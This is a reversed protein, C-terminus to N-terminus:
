LQKCQRDGKQTQSCNAFRKKTNKPGKKCFLALYHNKARKSLL